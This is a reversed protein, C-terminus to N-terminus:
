VLNSQAGGAQGQVGGPIPFGYSRQGVQEMPEGGGCHLIEKMNKHQPKPNKKKLFDKASSYMMVAALSM